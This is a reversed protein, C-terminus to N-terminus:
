LSNVYKTSLNRAALYNIRKKEFYCDRCMVEYSTVRVPLEFNSIVSTSYIQKGQDERSIFYESM